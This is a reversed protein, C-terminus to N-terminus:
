RRGKTLRGRELEFRLEKTENILERICDCVDRNSESWMLLTTADMISGGVLKTSNGPESESWDKKVKKLTKWFATASIGLFAILVGLNTAVATIDHTASVNPM